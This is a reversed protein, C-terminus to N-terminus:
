PHFLGAESDEKRALPYGLVVECSTSVGNGPVTARDTEGSAMGAGEESLSIPAPGDTGFQKREHREVKRKLIKRAVDRGGEPLNGYHYGNGFPCYYADLVKNPHNRKAHRKAEKRTRYLEKGCEQCTGYGSKFNIAM